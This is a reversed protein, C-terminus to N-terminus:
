AEEQLLGAQARRWAELLADLHPTPPSTVSAERAANFSVFLGTVLLVAASPKM